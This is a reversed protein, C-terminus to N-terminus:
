KYITFSMKIVVGEETNVPQFYRGDNFRRAEIQKLIENIFFGGLGTSGTDKIPLRGYIAIEEEDFVTEKSLIGIEVTDEHM